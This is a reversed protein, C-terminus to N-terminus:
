NERGVGESRSKEWPLDRGAFFVVEKEEEEELIKDTNKMSLQKATYHNNKHNNQICCQDYIALVGTINIWKWIMQYKAATFGKKMLNIYQM